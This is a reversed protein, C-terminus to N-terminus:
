YNVLSFFDKNLVTQYITHQSSKHEKNDISHQETNSFTELKMSM